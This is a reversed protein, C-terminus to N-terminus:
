HNQGSIGKVMIVSAEFSQKNRINEISNINWRM